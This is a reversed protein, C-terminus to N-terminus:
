GEMKDRWDCEKKMKSMEVYKQSVARHRRWFDLFVEEAILAGALAHSLTYMATCRRLESRKNIQFNWHTCLLIINRRVPPIFLPFFTSSIMLFIRYVHCTTITGIYRLYVFDLRYISRNGPRELWMHTIYTVHFKTNKPEWFFAKLIYGGTWVCDGNKESKRTQHGGGQSRAWKRGERRTENFCEIVWFEFWVLAGSVRIFFQHSRPIETKM